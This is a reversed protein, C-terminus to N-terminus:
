RMTTSGVASDNVGGAISVGSLTGGFNTTLGTRDVLDVLDAMIM